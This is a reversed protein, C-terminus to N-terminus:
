CIRIDSQQGLLFEDETEVAITSRAASSDISLNAFNTLPMDNLLVRQATEGTNWQTKGCQFADSLSSTKRKL